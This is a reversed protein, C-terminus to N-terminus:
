VLSNILASNGRMFEQMHENALLDFKRRIAYTAFTVQLEKKFRSMYTCLAKANAESAHYGCEYATLTAADPREPVPTGIPDAVIADLDPSQDRIRVWQTFQTAAAEGMIGALAAQVILGEMQHNLGFNPPPEKGQDIFRQQRAVLWRIAAVYSRPTCFPGQDRPVENTFVLNPFKKAFMIFIPSMGARFAWREWPGFEATVHVEARRNIIFDFNKTSGSRDSTRNSGLVIYIGDHLQHNGIRRNLILPALAKKTDVDGKDWEDIFLIGYKFDNFYRGDQTFMWNPMTYEARLVTRKHEGSGIEAKSPVMYGNVHVPTSTAPMFIGFGWEIGTRKPLTITAMNEVSESKGCGPPGIIELALNAKFYNEIESELDQLNM